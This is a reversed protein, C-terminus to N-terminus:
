ERPGAVNVLRAVQAYVHRKYGDNFPGSPQARGLDYSRSDKWGTSMRSTRALVNIRVATVNQWNALATSWDYGAVATCAAANNVGPDGVYCDPSGNNDMDVGYVLHMDQIGQAIASVQFAGGSLEAMKLTPVGDGTGTCQDCGALYFIRVVAQRLEAPVAANCTKTRLTFAPASAGFVLSATDDACYSAQLYSQGLSVAAAPTTSVRRVVVIESTPLLDTLCPAVTGPPFGQVGLPMTVPSGSFGLAAADTACLDPSSPIASKALGSAGFFGALEIERGLTDLLYRGNEMQEASNSFEARTRTTSMYLSALATLLLLSLTIGVMLEVLSFGHQRVLRPPTRNM